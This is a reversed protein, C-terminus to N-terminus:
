RASVAACYRLPNQALLSQLPSLPPFHHSNFSMLKGPNGSNGSNGPKGPNGPNGSNGPKGPNGPNGSNGTKGPNGSFFGDTSAINM